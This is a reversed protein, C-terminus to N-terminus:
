LVEFGAAIRLEADCFESVSYLLTSFAFLKYDFQRHAFGLEM